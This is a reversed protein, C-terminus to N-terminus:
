KLLTLYNNIEKEESFYKKVLFSNHKTTNKYKIFNQAILLLTHQLHHIDQNNAMAFSFGLDLLEPFSTNNYSIPVLEYALAELFANSLGEGHSPFLFIDSKQYYIDVNNTFGVLEIKDKYPCNHYFQIFEEEYHEDIAGVLKLNFDIKNKHLVECALIADTQGKAKAIRGVHLLSLQNTDKEKKKMTKISISSYILKSQTYKGFPIIYEVNKQLHKCISIHYNVNSYILRHFLDKKPKSKTTGHRVILNINLGIFAFYLSRLESAGFFIVNKINNEKIVKRMKLIMQLSFNMNFSITELKCVAQKAIFSNEKAVLLAPLYPSLKNTLKIADLEMGGNNPSLCIIATASKNTKCV